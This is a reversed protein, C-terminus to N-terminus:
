GFIFSSKAGIGKLHMRNNHPAIDGGRCQEDPLAQRVDDNQREKGKNKQAIRHTM